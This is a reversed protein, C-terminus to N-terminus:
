GSPQRMDHDKWPGKGLNLASCHIRQTQMATIGHLNDAVDIYSLSADAMALM